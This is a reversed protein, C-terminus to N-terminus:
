RPSASLKLKFVGIPRSHCAARSSREYRVCEWDRGNFVAGMVRPDVGSPPPCSARVDDITVERGHQALRRATERAYALWNARTVEFLPLVAQEFVSM